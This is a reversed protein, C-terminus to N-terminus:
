PLSTCKNRKNFAFAIKEGLEKLDWPKVLYGDVGNEVAELINDIEDMTTVMVFPIEKFSDDSRIMKLFEIGKGDPLNWDSLIFGPKNILVGALADKVTAALLVKGKFGLEKLDLQIKRQFTGTDELIFLTLNEPISIEDIIINNM